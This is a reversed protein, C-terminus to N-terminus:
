LETSAVWGISIEGTGGVERRIKYSGDLASSLLYPLIAINNREHNFPRTRSSLFYFGLSLSLPRTLFLPRCRHIILSLTGHTASGHGTFPRSFGMEASFASSGFYTEQSLIPLFFILFCGAGYLSSVM